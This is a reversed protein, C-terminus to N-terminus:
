SAPHLLEHRPNTLIAHITQDVWDLVEIQVAASFGARSRAAGAEGAPRLPTAAALELFRRGRRSPAPVPPQGLADFAAAQIISQFQQALIEPRDFVEVSVPHGAIGVMVGVQGPFPRLGALLHSDQHESHAAYDLYSQTSSHGRQGELSAIRAWVESQRDRDRRRQDLMHQNPWLGARIRASARRGDSQHERGGSWRGHEVCVVSVPMESHAPLLVTQAVMRHQHGGELLEGAILLLPWDKPNSVLLTGVEPGQPMESVNLAWSSTSYLSSTAGEGWLPFLTLAGFTRGHGLHLTSIMAFRREHPLRSARTTMIVVLVICPRNLTTLIVLLIVAHDFRLRVLALEWRERHSNVQDHQGHARNVAAVTAIQSQFRHQDLTTLLRESTLESKRTSEDLDVLVHLRCGVSFELLFRPQARLIHAQLLEM